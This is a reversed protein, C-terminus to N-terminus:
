RWCKEFTAASALGVSTKQGKENIRYTGCEDPALPTAEVTFGQESVMGAALGITYRQKGDRPSRALEAPLTTATGARDKDYRDNAVYYRQMYLAAETLSSRADARYGRRMLELYSPYGISALIAIAALTTLLEITTFGPRSKAVLRIRM